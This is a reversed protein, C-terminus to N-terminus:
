GTGWSSRLLDAPVVAASGPSRPLNALKVGVFDTAGQLLWPGRLGARHRLLAPRRRAYARRRTHSPHRTAADAPAWGRHPMLPLGHDGTVPTM